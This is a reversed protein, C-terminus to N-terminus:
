ATWALLLGSLSLGIGKPSAWLSSAVREQLAIWYGGDASGTFCFYNALDNTVRHVGGSPFDVQWIQANTSSTNEKAVFVLGRGDPLWGMRGLFWWTQPGVSTERGTDAAIVEIRQRGLLGRHGVAAAIQRSDPSWAPAEFTFGDERNHVSIPRENSGDSNAVILAVESRENSNRMFALRKGDPSFTVASDVDSILKRPTGGVMPVRYLGYLGTGERSDLNEYYIYTGDPSFTLRAGWPWPGIDDPVVLASSGTAIQYVWVSPHGSDLNVFAAYKGDPSIAADKVQGTFTLRAIRLGELPPRRPFPWDYVFAVGYLGLVVAVLGSVPAAYTRWRPVKRLLTAAAHKGGPPATAPWSM